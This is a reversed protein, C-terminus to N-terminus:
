KLLKGRFSCSFPSGERGSGEVDGQTQLGGGVVLAMDSATIFVTKNHTVYWIYKFNLVSFYNRHSQKLVIM